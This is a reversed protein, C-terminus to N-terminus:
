FFLTGTQIVEEVATTIMVIPHLCLSQCVDSSCFLALFPGSSLKIKKKLLTGSCDLPRHSTKEAPAVPFVPYVCPQPPFM